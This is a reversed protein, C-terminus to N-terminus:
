SSEESFLRAIIGNSPILSLSSFIILLIPIGILPLIPKVPLWISEIIGYLHPFHITFKQWISASFNFDVFLFIIVMLPFIITSILQLFRIPFLAKKILTRDPQHATTSFIIAEASPLTVFNDPKSFFDNQSQKFWSGILLTDQCISCHEIHSKLDDLMEQNKLRYKIISEFPCTQDSM